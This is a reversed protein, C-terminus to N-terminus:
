RYYFDGVLLRRFYDTADEFPFTEKLTISEFVQKSIQRFFRDLLESVKPDWEEASDEMTWQSEEEYNELWFMALFM